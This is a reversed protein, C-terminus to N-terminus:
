ASARREVWYYDAVGSQFMCPRYALKTAQCKNKSLHPYEDQPCTPVECIDPETRQCQDQDDFLRRMRVKEAHEMQSLTFPLCLYVQYM